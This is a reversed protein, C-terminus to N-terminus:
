ISAKNSDDDEGTTGQSKYNVNNIAGKKLM